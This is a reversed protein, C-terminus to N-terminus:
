PSDPTISMDELAKTWYTWRKQITSRFQASHGKHKDGFEFGAGNLNVSKATDFKGGTAGQQGTAFSRSEAAFAFIEFRNNPFTLVQAPSEWFQDRLGNPDIPIVNDYHYGQDPKLSQNLQWRVYSLAWDLPNYHNIFVTSSPMNVSAMYSPRGEPQWQHPKSTPSSKWHYGYVNPTTPTFFTMDPTTNDWVHSSLAAQASIYTHVSSNARMQRLAESAVVNGMSHAYLRVLSKGTSDKFTGALSATLAHLPAASNWAREESGDFHSTDFYDAL